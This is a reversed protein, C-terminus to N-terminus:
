AVAATDGPEKAAGEEEVETRFGHDFMEDEGIHNFHITTANHGVFAVAQETGDIGLSSDALFFGGVLFDVRAAEDSRDFGVAAHDTAGVNAIDLRPCRALAHYASHDAEVLPQEDRAVVSAGLVVELSCHATGVVGKRANSLVVGVVTEGEAAIEVAVNVGVLNVVGRKNGAAEAIGGSRFEHLGVIEHMRLVFKGYAIYAMTFPERVMITEVLTDGFKHFM